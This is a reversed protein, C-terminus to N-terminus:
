MPQLLGAFKYIFYIFLAILMGSNSAQIRYYHGLFTIKLHLFSAKSIIVVYRKFTIFAHSSNGMVYSNTTSQMLLAAASNM